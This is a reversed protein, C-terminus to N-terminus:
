VLQCSENLALTLLNCCFGIFLFSCFLVFLCIKTHRPSKQMTYQIYALPPPAGQQLLQLQLAVTNLSVAPTHSHFWVEQLCKVLVKDFLLIDYVTFFIDM